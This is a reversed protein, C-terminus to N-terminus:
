DTLFAARFEDATGAAYYAASGDSKECYLREGDIWINLTCSSGDDNYFLLTCDPSTTYQGPAAVIAVQLISQLGPTNATADSLVSQTKDDEISASEINQKQDESSDADVATVSVYSYEMLSAAMEVSDEELAASDNGDDDMASILSRDDADASFVAPMSRAGPFPLGDMSKGCLLILAVCAAVATVRSLWQKKKPKAAQGNVKRMVSETFGDPVPELDSIVQSLASFADYVALCEPCAALHEMVQARDSESLEGDAMTSIKERIEDCCM